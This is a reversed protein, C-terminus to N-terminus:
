KVKARRRSAAGMGILGVGVLALLSPEPIDISADALSQHTITVIYNGSGLNTDASFFGSNVPRVSEPFFPLAAVSNNLSFPDSNETGGTIGGAAGDPAWRFVEGTLGSVTIVWANSANASSGPVGAPDLFARLFAEANFRIGLTIPDVVNLFFSASLGANSEATGTGGPKLSVTDDTTANATGTIPNGNDLFSSSGVYTGTPSAVIAAGPTYSGSQPGTAVKLDFGTFLAPNASDLLSSGNLTAKVDGNDAGGTINLPSLGTFQVNTLKLYAQAVADAQAIAPTLAAAVAIGLPAFLARLGSTRSLSM